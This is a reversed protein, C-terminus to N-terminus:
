SIKVGSIPSNFGPSHNLIAPTLTANLSSQSVAPLPLRFSLTQFFVVTTESVILILTYFVVGIDM